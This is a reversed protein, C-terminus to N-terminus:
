WGAILISGLDVPQPAADAHRGGTRRLPRLARPLHGLPLRFGLFLPIGRARLPRCRGPVHAGNLGSPLQLGLVAQLHAMDYHDRPYPMLVRPVGVGPIRTPRWRDNRWIGEDRSRCEDCDAPDEGHRRPEPLVPPRLASVRLGDADFPSIDWGTM